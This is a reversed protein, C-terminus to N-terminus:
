ARRHPLRSIGQGSKPEAFAPTALECADDCDRTGAYYIGKSAKTLDGAFSSITDMTMTMFVFVHLSISARM